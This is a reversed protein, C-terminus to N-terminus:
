AKVEMLADISIDLAEALRVATSFSVDNQGHEIRRVANAGIGLETAIAMQSKKKRARGVRVGDGFEKLIKYKRSM